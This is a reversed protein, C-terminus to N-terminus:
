RSGSWEEHGGELGFDGDDDETVQVVMLTGLHGGPKWEQRGVELAVVTM